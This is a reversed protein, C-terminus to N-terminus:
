VSTPDKGKNISWNVTLPVIEIIFLDADCTKALETLILREPQIRNMTVAQVEEGAVIEASSGVVVGTGVSSVEL